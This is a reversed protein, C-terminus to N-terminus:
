DGLRRLIEARQEDTILPSRALLRAKTMLTRQTAGDNLERSVSAADLYGRAARVVDGIEAARDAGLLLAARSEELDMTGYFLYGAEFLCRVALSDGVGRLEAAKRHLRAAERNSSIENRAILAIARMHLQEAERTVDDTSDRTVHASATRLSVPIIPTSQLSALRAPAVLTAALAIALTTSLM